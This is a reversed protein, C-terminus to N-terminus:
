QMRSEMRNKEHRRKHCSVCLYELNAPRQAERDNTFERYPRKHHVHGATTRRGCEQCTHRDRKRVLAAVDRMGQRDENGSWVPENGPLIERELIAGTTYPNPKYIAAKYYAREIDTPIVLAVEETRFTNKGKFRLIAQKKSIRHKRCLFRCFTWYVHYNLRNFVKYANTTHRYYNCWGRVYANTAEIKARVSERHYADDLMQLVKHRCRRQAEKPILLKTVLKGTMGVTRRIEFGLFRFGDNVHTVKTKEISLNLKLRGKLFAHLEEKMAEAQGRTGNCLVVFDDAYRVYLFNAEGARRRRRRQDASLGAYREMHQDLGHLYVNALLPSIVGGQPTGTKTDKFLRNEMVGARLFSQLLRLVKADKVRRGVM